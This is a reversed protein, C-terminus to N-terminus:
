IGFRIAQTNPLQATVWSNIFAYVPSFQFYKKSAGHNLKKNPQNVSFSSCLEIPIKIESVLIKNNISHNIFKHIKQYIKVFKASIRLSIWCSVSLNDPLLLTVRNRSRDVTKM